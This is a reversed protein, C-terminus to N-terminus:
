CCSTLHELNNAVKYRLILFVTLRMVTLISVQTDTGSLEMRPASWLKVADSSGSISTNFGICILGICIIQDNRLSNLRKREEEWNMQIREGRVPETLSLLLSKLVTFQLPVTKGAHSAITRSLKCCNCSPDLLDPYQGKPDCFSCNKNIRNDYERFSFSLVM